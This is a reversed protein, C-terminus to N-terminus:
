LVDKKLEAIKMAIKMKKDIDLENKMQQKLKKIEEKTTHKNVVDIYLLMSEENIDDNLNDNIINMIPAKIEELDNIYTVFDALNINENNSIYYMIENAINRYTPNEFYGLNKKYLEIYTEDNMM